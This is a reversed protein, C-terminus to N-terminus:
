DVRDLSMLRARCQTSICICCRPYMSPSDECFTPSRDFEFSCSDISVAVFCTVVLIPGFYVGAALITRMIDISGGYCRVTTSQNQEGKSMNLRRESEYAKIVEIQESEVVVLITENANINQHYYWLVAPTSTLGLFEFMRRKEKPGSEPRIEMILRGKRAVISRLHPFWTATEVKQSRGKPNTIYQTRHIQAVCLLGM